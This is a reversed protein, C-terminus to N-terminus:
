FPSTLGGETLWFAARLSLKILGSALGDPGFLVLHVLSCRGSVLILGLLGLDSWFRFSRVLLSCAGSWFCGM